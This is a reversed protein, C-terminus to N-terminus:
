RPCLMPSHPPAQPGGAQQPGQGSRSAARPEPCLGAEFPLAGNQGDGWARERLEGIVSARHQSRLRGVRTLSDGTLGTDSQRDGTLGRAEPAAVQGRQDTALNTKLVTAPPCFAVPVKKKVLRAPSSHPGSVIAKRPTHPKHVGLLQAALQEQRDLRPRQPPSHPRCASEWVPLRLRFLVSLLFCFAPACVSVCVCLCGSM